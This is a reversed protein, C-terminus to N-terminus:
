APSRDDVTSCTTLLAKRRGYRLDEHRQSSVEYQLRFIGLVKRQPRNSQATRPIRLLFMM